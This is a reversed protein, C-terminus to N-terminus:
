ESISISDLVARVESTRAKLAEEAHRAAREFESELESTSFFRRAERFTTCILAKLKLDSGSAGAAVVAQECLVRRDQEDLALVGAAWDAFFYGRLVKLQFHRAAEHGQAEERLARARFLRISATRMAAAADGTGGMARELGVLADRYAQEARELGKIAESKLV